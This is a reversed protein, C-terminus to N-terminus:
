HRAQALRDVGRAIRRDTRVDKYEHWALTKRLGEYGRSSPRSEV